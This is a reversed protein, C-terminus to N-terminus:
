GRSIPLYAAWYAPRATWGGQRIMELQAQRLSEATARSSWANATLHRYFTPFIPGDTDVTPWLTAVVTGVGSILLARSLGNIGIGPIIEGTSSSCGSLVVLKTQTRIANLDRSGFLASTGGNAGASLAVSITHPSDPLSVFHSSIHVIDPSRRLIGLLEPATARLGTRTETEWGRRELMASMLEVEKGSQPLRNLGVPQFVGSVAPTMRADARNYVPDGFAAAFHSWNTRQEQSLSFVSPVARLTHDSILYRSGDASGPLAAIPLSALEQDLVMTWFPITRSVSLNEGFLQKSLKLGASSTGNQSPNLLDQRFEEVLKAIEGRGAIRRVTVKRNAVTWALSYPEALYYTFIAEDPKLRALWESSAPLGTQTNQPLGLGAQAEMLKLESDLRSLSENDDDKGTALVSDQLRQYRTLTTWYEAPLRESFSTAPFQAARMSAFRAEEAIWLSEVAVGDQSLDFGDSLMAGLFEKQVEGTLYSEFNLFASDTPLLQMRWRRATALANRLPPLADSFKGRSLALRAAEREQLFRHMAIQGSPKLSRTVELMREALEYEQRNRYINALQLADRFRAPDQFQSRLRFAELSYREAEDFKRSWALAQGYISFVWARRLERASESWKALRAKNAALVTAPPPKEAEALARAFAERVQNEKSKGLRTFVNLQVGFASLRADEPLNEGNLPHSLLLEGAARSDGTELMLSAMNMLAVNEWKPYGRRRAEEAALRYQEIAKQYSSQLQYCAAINSLFQVSLEIQGEKLAVERAVQYQELAGYIDSQSIRRFAEARIQKLNQSIPPPEAKAQVSPSKLRECSPFIGALLLLGIGAQALRFYPEM